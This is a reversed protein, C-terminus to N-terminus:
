PEVITLGMLRAAKLMRNDYSALTVKQGQSRLFEASALHLADM